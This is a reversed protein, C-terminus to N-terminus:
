SLLKKITAVSKRPAKAEFLSAQWGLSRAAEINNIRDDVLLIKGAPVGALPLAYDFIEQEPKLFGIKASIIEAAYPIQPLRKKSVLREYGDVAIDSLIGIKFQSVLEHALDHTPKIVEFHDVFYHLLPEDLKQVLQFTQYFQKEMESWSSSGRDVEAIHSVFFDILEEEAIGLKQAIKQLGTFHDVLVGGIDFYIFEVPKKM